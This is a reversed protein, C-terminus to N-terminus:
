NKNIPKNNEDAIKVINIDNILYAYIYKAYVSTVRDGPHGDAPNAWLERISYKKLDKEIFTFLNYYPIHNDNFIDCIRDFYQKLMPNHNEPTLIISFPIKKGQCYKKIDRLLKAYKKLNNETYVNNVLWNYSGYNLYTNFFNNTIDIFFSAANPFVVAFTNNIARDVFGNPTIIVKNNSYDMVPDNVVFAFILYDFQYKFGENKLFDFEDLTTWGPVGWSFVECNINQMDFLKELKRTWIVSDPVGTGWIFSDGLVAIRIRNTKNKNFDYNLDNFQYKNKAATNKHQINIETNLEKFKHPVWLPKSSSLNQFYSFSLTIELLLILMVSTFSLLLLNQVAKKKKILIYLGISIFVIQIFVLFISKEISGFKTENNSIFKITWENLSIGFLIILGALIKYIM